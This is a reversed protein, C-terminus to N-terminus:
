KEFEPNFYKMFQVREYYSTDEVNKYNLISRFDSITDYNKENMWKELDSIITSIESFGKNYVVSCIQVCQAGALLQKILGEASHVGTSAVLELNRIKSSVIAMWRLSQHINASTSLVNSNSVELKDIDIDLEYFKNFLVVADVGVSKLRDVVNLVNTFFPSLKVCIPINVEDRVTKVLSIYENEYELSTINRDKPMIFVNLELADAGAKELKKAFSVWNGLSYCNVSAIIPINCQKKSEEILTLYENVSDEKIYESLYQSAEDAYMNNSNESIYKDINSVIQEEFISKLVVAGAGAKEIKKIKDVSSTLGSSSVIIPNKLNLGMYKVSLNTM